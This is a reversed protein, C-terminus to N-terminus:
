GRVTPWAGGVSGFHKKLSNAFDTKREPWGVVQGANDLYICGLDAPPYKSLDMETAELVKLWSKKLAVADIPRITREIALSEPSIRAYRRILSMVLDPTLGPDKGCAGWIMASLSITTEHLHLADLIDRVESRGSLALCKNTALDVVHLRHGMISDPEVPFFRFTSDNAWDLKLSSNNRSVVATIFGPQSVTVEVAYGASQLSESDSGFSRQVSEISAHFLDIDNSFRPSSASSNIASGGAVYSNPNRNKAITQFVIIQFEDLPM